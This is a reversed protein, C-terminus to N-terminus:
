KAGAKPARPKLRRWLVPPLVASGILLVGAFLM